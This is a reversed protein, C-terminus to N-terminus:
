KTIELDKLADALSIKYAKAYHLVEITKDLSEGVQEYLWKIQPGSFGTHPMKMLHNLLEKRM